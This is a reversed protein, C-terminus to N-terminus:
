HASTAKLKTLVLNLFKDSNAPCSGGGIVEITDLHYGIVAKEYGMSFIEVDPTQVGQLGVYGHLCSALYLVRYHGRADALTEFDGIRVVAYPVPQGDENDVDGHLFVRTSAYRVCRLQTFCMVILIIIQGYRLGSM